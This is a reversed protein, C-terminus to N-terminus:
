AKVQTRVGNEMETLIYNLMEESLGPHVGIWFSQETIRDSNSLRATSFRYKQYAPQLVLNGGFIPRTGIKKSELYRVLPLREIGECHVAFGFWSPNTEETPQVPLLYKALLPSHHIGENLINWNRRRMEIFHELSELQALGISAQLDTMKMNYGVSSYVYKHDYGYPLQGLQWDFRRQCTNDKGTPCWCDRGWDRLSEAVKRLDFSKSAVAGGEGTTIHHAPYFSLTAYDGFSGVLRQLIKGGLADCCDEIFYLGEEECWAAIQDSRFPNGLTHALFVARTKATRAQYISEPTANLTRYDVDAFVPQLQNHLIANLTTPFGIATTIVEDGAVLPVRDIKKLADSCLASMAILNASSGSNVLLAKQKSGLWKPLEREFNEAFRGATFWLDLSADLLSLLEAEGILKATTPLYTEGPIFATDRKSNRYYDRAAEFVKSRM